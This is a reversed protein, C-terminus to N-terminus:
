EVIKDITVTVDQEYVAEPDNSQQYYPYVKIYIKEGPKLQATDMTRQTDSGYPNISDLCEGKENYYDVYFDGNDVVAGTIRYAGEAEVTYTLLEVQGYTTFTLKETKGLTEAKIAAKDKVDLVYGVDSDSDNEIRFFIKERAFTSFIKDTGAPTELISDSTNLAVFTKEEGAKLTFSYIKSRDAFTYELWVVDNAPVTFAHQTGGAAEAMVKKASVTVNEIKEESGTYTMVFLVEENKEFLRDPNRDVGRESIFRISVDKSDAAIRYRAKEPAKFTFFRYKNDKKDAREITIGKGEDDATLETPDIRDARVKFKVTSDTTNTVRLVESLQDARTSEETYSRVYYFGQNFSTDSFVRSVGPRDGFQFVGRLNSTGETEIDLSRFGYIGPDYIMYAFYATEGPELTVEGSAEGNKLMYIDKNTVALKGIIDEEESAEVRFFLSEGKRLYIADGEEYTYDWQVYRKYSYCEPSFSEPTFRYYGDELVTYEYYNTEGKKVEIDNKEEIKLAVPKIKEPMGITLHQESDAGSSVLMYVMDGKHLYRGDPNYDEATIMGTVKSDVLYTVSVHTATESLKVPFRYRGDGPVSYKYWMQKGNTVVPKQETDLMIPKIPGISIIGSVNSDENNTIRIKLTDGKGFVDYGANGEEYTPWADYPTWIDRYEGSKGKAEVSVSPIMHDADEQVETVISYMNVESNETATFTYYKTEGPKLEFPTRTESELVTEAMKNSTVKLDGSVAKDADTSRVIIYRVEGARLTQTYHDGSVQNEWLGNLNDTVYMVYTGTDKGPIFTITYDDTEKATFAYYVEENEAGISVHELTSGAIVTKLGLDTVSVNINTKVDANRDDKGCWSTNLAFTLTEGAGMYRKVKGANVTLDDGTGTTSLNIGLSEQENGFVKDYRTASTITHKYAAKEQATNKYAAAFEYYGAKQATFTYWYEGCRDTITQEKSVGTQLSEVPAKEVTVIADGADTDTERNDNRVRLYIRDGKKVLSADNVVMAFSWPNTPFSVIQKLDSGLVATFYASVDTRQTRFIYKGNEPVDFSVMKTSEHEVSVNKDTRLEIVRDFAVKIKVRVATVKDAFADNNATFRFVITQGKALEFTNTIIKKDDATGAINTMDARNGNMDDEIILYELGLGATEEYSFQYKQTDPATFKVFRANDERSLVVEVEEKKDEYSLKDKAYDVWLRSTSETNDISRVQMFLTTGEKLVISLSGNNANATNEIIPSQDDSVKYRIVNVGGFVYYNDAPAKFSIWEDNEIVYPADKSNDPSLGAFETANVSLRFNGSLKLYVKQGPELFKEIQTVNNAMNGANVDDLNRGDYIAMFVPEAASIRTRTFTYKGFKPATFSVWTGDCITNNPDAVTVDNSLTLVELRGQYLPDWKALVDQYFTSDWSPEYDGGFGPQGKGVAKVRVLYRAIVKKTIKSRVEITTTGQTLAKLTATYTGPVAKVSAVKANSSKWTLTDTVRDRADTVIGSDLTYTNGSTFYPSVGLQVGRYNVNLGGYVFSFSDMDTNNIAPINTTKVKITAAKASRNLEYVPTVSISYSSLRVIKDNDITYSYTKTKEFYALTNTFLFQDNNIIWQQQRQKYAPADASIWRLADWPVIDNQVLERSVVSGRADKVLIEFAEPSGAHAFNITIQQNDVYSVKLKKVPDLQAATLTVTAAGGFGINSDTVQLQFQNKNPKVATIYIQSDIYEIRYGQESAAEKTTILKMGSSRHFPIKKGAQKYELCDALAITDGVKLKVKKGTISDPKATITLSCQGVVNNDSIVSIWVTVSGDLDVGKFTIKGKNSITAYKSHIDKYYTTNYVANPDDSVVYTLKPEVYYRLLDKNGSKLPLSYRRFDHDDAADKGEEEREEFLGYVSIQASKAQLEVTYNQNEDFSVPNKKDSGATNVTFYPELEQVMSKTTVFSKVSGSASFTVKSGDDLTRIASVNRVYVVYITGTKLQLIKQISDNRDPRYIPALDFIGQWQGNKMRGIEEEFKDKNWLRVDSKNEVSKVYIERRYGDNVPTYQIEAVTDLATIKKIGPATVPTVTIKTKAAKVGKQIEKVTGDEARYVPYAEVTVPTKTPKLATIRGTEPDVSLYENSTVNGDLRYNLYIIDGLQAKKIKVDLQQEEGVAMKTNVGTFALSKPAVAKKLDSELVIGELNLVFKETYVKAAEKEEGEWTITFTPKTSIINGNEDTKVPFLVKMVHGRFRGQEDFDMEWLDQLVYGGAEKVNNKAIFKKADFKSGHIDGEYERPAYIKFAVYNGDMFPIEDGNVDRLGRGQEEYFFRIGERPVITYTKSVADYVYHVDVFGDTANGGAPIFDTGSIDAQGRERIVTRASKYTVEYSSKWPYVLEGTFKVDYTKDCRLYKEDFPPELTETDMNVTIDFDYGQKEKIANYFAPYGKGEYPLILYNNGNDKLYWGEFDGYAFIGSDRDALNEVSVPLRGDTGEEPDYGYLESVYQGAKLGENLVPTITIPRKTIRCSYAAMNEANNEEYASYSYAAYTENGAFEVALYYTGGYIAEQTPVIKYGGYIYQYLENWDEEELYEWVWRVNVLDKNYEAGTNLLQDTLDEGDENRVTILKKLDEPDTIIPNGDYQKTGPMKERDITIDLRGDTFQIDGPWFRYTKQDDARDAAAVPRIECTYNKYQPDADLDAIYAYVQYKRNGYLIIQQNTNQEWIKEYIQNGTGSIEPQGNTGWKERRVNWTLDLSSDEDFEKFIKLGTKNEAYMKSFTDIDNNPVEYITYLLPPQTITVDNWREGDTVYRNEAVVIVEQQKIFFYVDASASLRRGKPDKYQIELRYFGSDAPTMLTGDEPNTINNYINAKQWDWRDEREFKKRGDEDEAIYEEYKDLTSFYWSYTLGESTYKVDTAQENEYLVAKKYDARKGASGFLADKDYVKFAPDSLSGIGKNETNIATFSDLIEKVDIRTPALKIIEKALEEDSKVIHNKNASNTSLDTIPVSVTVNGIRDYLVKNGTFKVRYQRKEKKSEMSAKLPLYNPVVNVWKDDEDFKIEDEGNAAIKERVQLEFEPQYYQTRTKDEDGSYAVGFFEKKADESDYIIESGRYTLKFEVEALAKALENETMGEFVEISEPKIVLPKPEITVRIPSSESKEYLDADDGEPVYKYMVYYEGADKPAEDLETYVYDEIQPTNDEVKNSRTYWAPVAKAGPIETLKGDKVKNVIVLEVNNDKKVGIISIDVPKGDYEKVFEKGPENLEVTVRTEILRDVNIVYYEEFLVEYNKNAATNFTPQDAIMIYNRSYYFPVEDGLPNGSRVGEKSVEYVNITINDIISKKDADPDDFEYEGLLRQRFEGVTDASHVDLLNKVINGNGDYFVFRPKLQQKNVTFYIYADNGKCLGKIDPVQIHLRYEGADAPVGIDLVSYVEKGDAAEEASKTQIEWTYNLVDNLGDLKEGDVHISINKNVTEQVDNFRNPAYQTSFLTRDNVGIERKFDTLNLEDSIRIVAQVDEASKATKNVGSIEKVENMEESKNDESEIGETNEEDSAEKDSNSEKTVSDTEGTYADGTEDIATREPVADGAADEGATTEKSVTGTNEVIGADADETLDTETASQNEAAFATVPVSQFLMAMSLIMPLVRRFLKRKFLHCGEKEVQLSRRFENIGSEREKKHM